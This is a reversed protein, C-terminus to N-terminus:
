GVLVPERGIEANEGVARVLYHAVEARAVIGNRWENPEYLVKYNETCPGNSLVGPRAITWDLRSSKIIREQKSKDDYARGFVAFFPARQLLGVARKSEGAGFGTLAVLRKPGTKEMIPTLIATAESFLSVPGTIMKLDFPVGLTQIVVDVGELAGKVDSANLADGTVKEFGDASFPLREISRSFGRVSHGQSLAEKVTALGVGNSAGVVLIKM